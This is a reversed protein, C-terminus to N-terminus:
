IVILELEIALYALGGIASGVALLGVWLPWPKRARTTAGSHELRVKTAHFTGAKFKGWVQVRDGQHVNSGQGAKRNLVMDVPKGSVSDQVRFSVVTIPDQNRLWRFLGGFIAQLPMFLFPVIFLLAGAGLCVLVAAMALVTALFALASGVFAATVAIGVLVRAIDTPPQEQSEKPEYAVVGTVRPAFLRGWFGRRQPAPPLLPAQPLGAPGVPSWQAAPVPFPSQAQPVGGLRAQIDRPEIAQTGSGPGTSGPPTTQRAFTLRTNGVLIVDGEALRCDTTIRQGNLYTGNRSHLDSLLYGTIEQRVEAHRNSVVSDALRIESSLDRGIRTVQATLSFCRGDDAWLAWPALGGPLPGPPPQGAPVLAPPVFFSRGCTGCFTAGARVLAGCYPCIGAM